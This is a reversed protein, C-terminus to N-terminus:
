GTVGEEGKEKEGRGGMERERELANITFSEDM